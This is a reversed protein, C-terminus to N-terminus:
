KREEKGCLTYYVTELSMGQGDHNRALKEELEEFSGAAIVRGEAMLVIDECLAKAELYSETALLVTKFGGLMRVLNWMQEREELTAKRTPEDLVLIRPNGLLAVAVSLFRKQGEELNSVLRRSLEWLGVLELAEKIQPELKEAPVGKAKGVFDMTEWVTMTSDLAMRAPVYGVQKKRAMADREVSVDKLLIKGDFDSDWGALINLLVTKGAGRPALIGHVGKKAVSFTLNKLIEERDITKNLDEVRLMWESEM